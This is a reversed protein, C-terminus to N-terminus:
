KNTKFGMINYESDLVRRTYDPIKMGLKMWIFQMVLKSTDKILKIRQPDQFYIGGTNERGVRDDWKELIPKLEEKVAQYLVEESNEKSNNQDFISM